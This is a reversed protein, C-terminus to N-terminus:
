KNEHAFVVSSDAASMSINDAKTKATNTYAYVAFPKDENLLYIHYCPVLRIKTGDVIEESEKFDYGIEMDEIFKGANDSNKNDYVYTLIAESSSCIGKNEEVFGNIDYDESEITKIGNDDIFFTCYNCFLKYGKYYEYYELQYGGNKYTVRDLVYSDYDSGMKKLFSNALDQAAKKGVGTMNGCGTPCSYSIKSNEAVLEASYSKMVTKELEASVTVSDDADFFMTKIEDIDPSSVTVDLQKMPSYDSILDTYIGIGNQALLKFVATEEDQTLRYNNYYYRNACFLVANLAILMVMIIRKAKRWDM